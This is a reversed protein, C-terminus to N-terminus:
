NINKLSGMTKRRWRGDGIKWRGDGKPDGM